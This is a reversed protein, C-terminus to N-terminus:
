SPHKDLIVLNAATTPRKPKPAALAGAASAQVGVL